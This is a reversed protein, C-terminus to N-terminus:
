QQPLGIQRILRTYREIEVKIYAILEDGGTAVPVFGLDKLRKGTEPAALTSVAAKHLTDIANKPTKAPVM